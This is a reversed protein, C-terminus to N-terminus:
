NGNKYIEDLDLLHSRLDLVVQTIYYQKNHYVYMNNNAEGRGVYIDILGNTWYIPDLKTDLNRLM